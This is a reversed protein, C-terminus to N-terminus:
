QWFLIFFSTSTFFNAYECMRMCVWPLYKIAHEKIVCLYNTVHMWILLKIKMYIWIIESQVMKIGHQIQEISTLDLAGLTAQNEDREGDKPSHARTYAM